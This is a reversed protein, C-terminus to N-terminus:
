ARWWTEDGEVEVRIRHGNKLRFHERLNLTSLIELHAPGHAYGSEHTNPRAIVARVGSIRCRQLKIYEHQNYEHMEVQADPVVIYPKPIALNLTGPVLPGLGTRHEILGIVHALNTGAMGFGDKVTGILAIVTV